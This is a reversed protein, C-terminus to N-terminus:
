IIQRTLKKITNILEDILQNQMERTEDNVNYKLHVNEEIIISAVWHVGKEIGKRGVLIENGKTNAFGCVGDNMFEVVRVPYTFVYGGKALFQTAAMITDMEVQTEKVYKWKVRGSGSSGKLGDHESGLHEVIKSYLAQPVLYTDKLLHSDVFAAYLSPAVYKGKMASKWAPSFSFNGIDNIDSCNEMYNEDGIVNLLHEILTVDNVKVLIKWQEERAKYNSAVVRSENIEVNTLEYDFVMKRDHGMCRIGRRYVTGYELKRTYIAGEACFFLPSRNQSFYSDFNKYIEMLEDGEKFISITTKGPKQDPVNPAMGSLRWEMSHGGEDLANSYVERVAQWLKWKPGMELTISTPEGDITIVDFEKERFSEKITGIIIERTGSYIRVKFGNRLLYALAYKNGSGFMGIKDNQDRKSSAGLLKLAGAEIEGNNQIVLEM